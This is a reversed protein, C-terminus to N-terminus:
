ATPAPPNQPHQPPPPPAAPQGYGAPPYAEGPPPTYGGQYGPQGGPYQETPYQGPYGGAPYTPAAPGAPRRMTPLPLLGGVGFHNLFAGVAAALAGILMFAGGWSFSLYDTKRSMAYGLLVLAAFLAIGVSLHSPRFGAIEREPAWFKRSLGLAILLIGAAVVFLTLPVMFLFLSWANWWDEYRADPGGFVTPVSSTIFPAFSFFFIFAGGGIMLADGLTLPWAPASPPGGAGPAPPPPTPDSPQM